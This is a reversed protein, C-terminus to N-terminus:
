GEPGVDGHDGAGREQREDEAGGGQAPARGSRRDTVVITGLRRREPRLLVVDFRGTRNALIDFRAPALPLVDEVLGLGRVAVQGARSSRVTLALQDGLPVEVSEARRAGADLSMKVLKGGTPVPSTRPSTTTTTTSDPEPPPPVLAAAVTSTVLLIVMVILLRRAAM